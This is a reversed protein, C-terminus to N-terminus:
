NQLSEHTEIDPLGKELYFMMLKPRAKAFIKKFNKAIIISLFYIWISLHYTATINKRIFQSLTPFLLYKICFFLTIIM